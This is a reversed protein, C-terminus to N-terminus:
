LEEEKYVLIKNEHLGFVNNANKLLYLKESDIREGVRILPTCPPFLGCTGACIKGEAHDLSVWITEATKHFVVPAPIQESEIKNELPFLSFAKTLEKKLLTFDRTKTAPSLYFIVVNGDCFEAYIGKNEFYKEAQFANKGFLACVKTWDQSVKFRVENKAYEKVLSELTKNQPYKVAYEVSAMIPYSPSTTRFIDVAERLYEAITEGNASVIAGQTFAPLSKHVGDVWLDAFTGAYLKKDFHLHGGHAGDILLLKGREKLFASIKELEGIQGYYDPSTLLLADAVLVQKLVENLAYMTPPNPINDTYSVPLVIPTLQLVACANYVSKHVNEFFAVMKVGAKKAAFLMSFVGSTSGDTLIFSATAGLVNTIDAQAKAIVGRPSSLNDSFSLETIDFKGSKHGPTHFSVHRKRAYARLMQWIHCRSATKKNQFSIGRM